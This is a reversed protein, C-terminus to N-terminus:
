FARRNMAKVIICIQPNVITILKHLLKQGVTMHKGSFLNFSMSLFTDWLIRWSKVHEFFLYAINDIYWM